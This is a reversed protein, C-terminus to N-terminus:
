QEVKKISIEEEFLGIKNFNWFVGTDKIFLIDVKLTSESVAEFIPTRINM